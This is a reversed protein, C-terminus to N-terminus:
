AALALTHHDSQRPSDVTLIEDGVRQRLDGPDEVADSISSKTMARGLYPVLEGTYYADNGANHLHRPSYTINARTLATSLSPKQGRHMGQMAMFVAQLDMIRVDAAATWGAGQQLWAIDHKVDWGTLIITSYTNQLDEFLETLVPKVHRQSKIPIAHHSEEASLFNYHNVATCFRNKFRKNDTILHFRTTDSKVGRVNGLIRIGIQTLVVRNHIYDVKELDVIVIATAIHTSELDKWTKAFIEADTARDM